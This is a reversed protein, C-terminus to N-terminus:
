LLEMNLISWAIRKRIKPMDKQGFTLNKNNSMYAAFMCSFPGCDSGNKQQPVTKQATRWKKTNFKKNKARHEAEIWGLMEKRANEHTEVSENCLSDMSLVKKNKVDIVIMYWHCNGANIPVFIKVDEKTTDIGRTWRKVLEHRKFANKGDYTADKKQRTDSLTFKTFFHSPLFISKDSGANGNGGLLLMYSNIIEDTYWGSTKLSNLSSYLITEGTKKGTSRCKHRFEFRVDKWKDINELINWSEPADAKAFFEDTRQKQQIRRTRVRAKRRREGRSSALASAPKRRRALSLNDEIEECLVQNMKDRLQSRNLDANDKLWKTKTTKYMDSMDNRSYGLGSFRKRFANWLNPRICTPDLVVGNKRKRHGTLHCTPRSCTPM